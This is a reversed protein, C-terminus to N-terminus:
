FRINPGVAVRLNHHAGDAFYIEDGVDVRFGIPGLYAEFGVGPYLAFKLNDSRLGQVSSVFTSFSAPRSDFMFDTFGAKVTAFGRLAGGGTQVKPGFLGHLVRLDSRALTVNGNVPDTFGETFARAFDYGMEAELQVHEHVNFSLRGGVGAFNSDTQSERFYNAFAGVEGHNQSFSLPVLGFCTILVALLLRRMM